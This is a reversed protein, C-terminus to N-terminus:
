SVLSIMRRFLTSLSPFTASCMLKKGTLPRVDANRALRPLHDAHLRMLTWIIKYGTGNTLKLHTGCMGFKLGHVDFINLRRFCEM